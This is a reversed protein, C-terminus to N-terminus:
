WMFHTLFNVFTLASLATLYVSFWKFNCKSVLKLMWRVAVYGSVAAAVAGVLTPLLYLEAVGIGSKLIKYLELLAAGLIVPISMIFSFDAVKKRDGDFLLGSAITTGSRSLGPMVAFAQGVGMALAVPIDIDKQRTARKAVLETVYLLIATALFLIFIYDGGFLSEVYDNLFVGVIGAPVTAIILCLMPKSIPKKVLEMVPKHLVALVAVLTGVHVMVDFFMANEPNIGLLNQTLVLHGSSSVPLFETFGQIIGLILAEWVEM